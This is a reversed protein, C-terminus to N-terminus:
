FSKTSIDRLTLTFKKFVLLIKGFHMSFIIQIHIKTVIVTNHGDSATPM